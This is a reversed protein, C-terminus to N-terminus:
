AAPVIRLGAVYAEGADIMVKNRGGAKAAYLARDARALADHLSAETAVPAALGISMTIQRPVGASRWDRAAFDARISQALAGGSALAMHPIYAVFEEGGFRAILTAHPLRSVLLDALGALVLDGSAHGFSDNVQKFSDIDCTMVIGSLREARPMAALAADFGRRNLLHTLPDREAALRYQELRALAVSALAALAFSVSLVGVSVQMYYTYSSNAFDNLEDSIGVLVNFIFLRVVIDIVVIAAVAVLIRDITTRARWLVTAVPVGLLIAVGLDGVLLELQLSELGVVVAIIGGYALLAFIIRLGTLRPAEFHRLLAEGYYFFSVFFVANGFLSRLQVPIPLIPAIFGAAGFLFALGWARAAAQGTWGIALFVSAFLTMTVPLLFAFNDM